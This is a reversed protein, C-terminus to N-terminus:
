IYDMKFDGLPKKVWNRLTVVSVGYERSLSKKTRGELLLGLILEKFEDTYRIGKKM